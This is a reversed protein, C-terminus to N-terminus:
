NFSASYAVSLHSLNHASIGGLNKLPYGQFTLHRCNPLSTNFAPLVQQHLPFVLTCNDLVHFTRGSMWQISVSKLRLHCLTHVFPFNIHGHYIPLPLCSATFSELQHLHPVLDVPARIGRADLSLVKISRFLSPYLSALFSIVNGSNIEVTTLESGATTGLIRLIGDLLPSTECASKIRFTASRSMTANSYQQLRRNVLDEPLDAHGPFSEIVLSRWRPTAEMAAFIAEFAGESPAFAGRDSDTDVVIDLLWQNRKVADIPTTTGLNLSVCISTVVAYWHKCVLMLESPPGYTEDIIILFIQLLLEFPLRTIPAIFHIICSYEDRTELSRHWLDNAVGYLNLSSLIDRITSSDALGSPMYSPVREKQLKRQAWVWVGALEEAETEAQVEAQVEAKVKALTELWVEKREAMDRWMNLALEEAVANLEAATERETETEAAMETELWIGIIVWFDPVGPPVRHGGATSLNVPHCFNRVEVDCVTM